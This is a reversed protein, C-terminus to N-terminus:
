SELPNLAPHSANEQSSGQIIIWCIISIIMQLRVGHLQNNHEVQKAVFRPRICFIAARHMGKQVGIQGGMSNLSVKCSLKPSVLAEASTTVFANFILSVCTMSCCSTLSFSVISRCAISCFKCTHLCYLIELLMCAAPQHRHLDGYNWISHHQHSMRIFHKSPLAGLKM